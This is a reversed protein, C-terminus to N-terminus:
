GLFGADNFEGQTRFDPEPISRRQLRSPIM